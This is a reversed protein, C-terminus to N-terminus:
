KEERATELIGHSMRHSVKIFRHFDADHEDAINEVLQLLTRSKHLDGSYRTLAVSQPVEVIALEKM